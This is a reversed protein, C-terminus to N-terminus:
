EKGKGEWSGKRKGQKRKREGGKEKGVLKKDVLPFYVKWSKSQREIRIGKGKEETVKGDSQETGKGEGDKEHGSECSGKGFANIFGGGGM